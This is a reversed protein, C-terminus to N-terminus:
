VKSFQSIGGGAGMSKPYIHWARITRSSSVKSGTNRNIFLLLFFNPNGQCVKSKLNTCFCEACICNGHNSGRLEVNEEVNPVKFCCFVSGM